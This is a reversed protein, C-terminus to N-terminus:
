GNAVKGEIRVLEEVGPVKLDFSYKVTRVEMAVMTGREKSYVEGEDHSDPEAYVKVAECNIRPSEMFEKYLIPKFDTEGLFRVPIIHREVKRNNEPDDLLALYANKFDIVVKEGIKRLTIIPNVQKRSVRDPTSNLLAKLQSLQDSTLKTLDFALPEAGKPEEGRSAEAQESGSSQSLREAVSPIVGPAESAGVSTEPRPSVTNVPVTETQPAQASPQVGEANENNDM